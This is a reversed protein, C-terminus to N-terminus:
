RMSHINLKKHCERAVFTGYKVNQSLILCNKIYSISLSPPFLSFILFHLSHIERWKRMRDRGRWKRMREGNEWLWAALSACSTCGQQPTTNALYRGMHCAQFDCHDHKYTLQLNFVLLNSTTQDGIVELKSTYPLWLNDSWIHESRWRSWESHYDGPFTPLSSSLCSFIYM